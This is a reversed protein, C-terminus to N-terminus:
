TAAAPGLGDAVQAARARRLLALAADDDVDELREYADSAPMPPHSVELAVIEDFETRLEPEVSAVLAPVALVLRAAGRQRAALAAACATTGTAVFDDVVVVVRGLLSPAPVEGRYLRVRGALEAAMEEAAAAADEHKMRADRLLTPNLYTVGGEALAGFPPEPTAGSRLKRVVVLDLPAGLGRAVEFAVPMGGRTLGLVVPRAAKLHELRAALLRGAHERDTFRM